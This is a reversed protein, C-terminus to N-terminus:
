SVGPINVQGTVLLRAISGPDGGTWVATIWDGPRLVRNPMACTAGTSGSQTTGIADQKGFAQIGYTVYLTCAAENVNTDVSVQAQEPQWSYGGNRAGYPGIRVIGNGLGSQPVRAIWVSAVNGSDETLETWTLGFTDSVQVGLATSASHDADVMAVLLSGAPPNFSATTVSLASIAIVSPPSSPDETLTTNPIGLIEALAIRSSSAPASAGLTVPTGGVTLAASRLTAHVAVNTVDSVNQFFTSSALPTFATSVLQNNLAGYVISGSANPTIAQQPPNAAANNATAGNQTAAANVLVRVTLAVGNFTAGSIEAATVQFLSLPASANEYLNAAIGPSSM